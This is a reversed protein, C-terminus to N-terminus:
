PSKRIDTKKALYRMLKVKAPIIYVYEVVLRFFDDISEADWVNIKEESYHAGLNGFIRLLDTIDGIKEPFVGKNILDKLKNALNRGSANQDNCIFELARRVQAVFATPSRRKMHWIESYLQQLHAPVIEERMVLYSPPLLSSGTPYLIPLNSGEKYNITFDGYLIPANCITCIYVLFEFDEYISEDDLTDFLLPAKYQYALTQLTISGCHSCERKMTQKVVTNNEDKM